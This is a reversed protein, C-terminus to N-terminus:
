GTVNTAGELTPVRVAASSSKRINHCTSPVDVVTTEPVMEFLLKVLQQFMRWSWVKVKARPHIVDTVNSPRLLWKRVVNVIYSAISAAARGIKALM